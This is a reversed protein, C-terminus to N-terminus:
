IVEHIFMPSSAEYACMKGKMPCQTQHEYGFMQQKDWMQWRELGM